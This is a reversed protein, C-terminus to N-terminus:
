ADTGGAPDPPPKPDPNPDAPPPDAPPDPAAGPATRLEDGGDIPPRNELKRVENVTLYPGGAVSVLGATRVQYNIRIIADTLFEVYRVDQDPEFLLKRSLEAEWKTLWPQLTTTLFDQNMTELNGWTAKALDHLKSPQINLIRAVEYVWWTLLEVYQAQENTPAFPEYKGGEELVATRGANDPGGHMTQWSARLNATGEEGLKGPFTIVGGPRGGNKFQASGYRQGALAFGISDRAVELLRFGTYGDASLGPVHVMDADPISVTKQGKVQWALDGAASWTPAVRTPHIPWLAAPTGDNNREVEAFANGYLLAHFQLTEFLVPRTMHPNPRRLLRAVPHKGDRERGDDATRRYLQPPMMGVAESIVRMGCFLAPLGLAAREDVIVGATSTPRLMGAAKAQDWTIDRKFAARLRSLWRM